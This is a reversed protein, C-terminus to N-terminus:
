QKADRNIKMVDDKSVYVWSEIMVDHLIKSGFRINVREVMADTLGKLDKKPASKFDKETERYIAKFAEDALFGDPKISSKKMMDADATYEFKAIIYGDVGDGQTLPVSIMRTKFSELSASAEGGAKNAQGHRLTMVGFASAATVLSVWLGLAILKIM